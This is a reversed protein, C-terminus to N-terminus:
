VESELYDSWVRGVCESEWECVRGVTVSWVRGITVNWVRGVTM